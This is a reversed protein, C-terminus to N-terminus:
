EHVNWIAWLEIKIHERWKLKIQMEFVHTYKDRISLCGDRQTFDSRM